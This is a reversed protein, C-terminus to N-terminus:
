HENQEGFISKKLAEILYDLQEDAARYDDLLESRIEGTDANMTLRGGLAWLKAKLDFLPKAAAHFAALNDRLNKDSRLTYPSLFLYKYSEASHGRVKSLEFASFADPIVTTKDISM